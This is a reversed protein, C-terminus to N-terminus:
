ANRDMFDPNKESDTRYKGAQNRGRRLAQIARQNRDKERELIVAGQEYHRSLEAAVAGAADARERVVQRDAESIDQASNWEAMLGRYERLFHEYQADRRRQQDFIRDIANEDIDGNLNALESISARLWDLQRDFYDLLRPVLNPAGM